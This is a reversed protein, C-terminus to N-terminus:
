ESEETPRLQDLVARARARAGREAQSMSLRESYLLLDQLADLTNDLHRRLASLHMQM